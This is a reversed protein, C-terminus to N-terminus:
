QQQDGRAHNMALDPLSDKLKLAQRTRLDIPVMLSFYKQLQVRAIKWLVSVEMQLSVRQM